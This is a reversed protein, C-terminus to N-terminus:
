DDEGCDMTKMKARIAQRKKNAAETFEIKGCSNFAKLGGVFNAYHMDIGDLAGQCADWTMLNGLRVESHKIPLAKM